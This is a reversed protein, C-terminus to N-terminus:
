QDNSVVKPNIIGNMAVSLSTEYYKAHWSGGPDAPYFQELYRWIVGSKRTLIKSLETSKTNIVKAQKDCQDKIYALAQLSTPCELLSGFVQHDKFHKEVLDRRLVDATIRLSFVYQDSICVFANFNEDDGFCDLYFVVLASWIEILRSYGASQGQELLRHRRLLPQQLLLPQKQLNIPGIFDRGTVDEPFYRQYLETYKAIYFFFQEGGVLPQNLQLPLQTIDDVKYAPYGNNVASLVMSFEFPVTNATHPLCVVQWYRYFGVATPPSLPIKLGDGSTHVAFEHPLQLDDVNKNRQRMRTRALIQETLYYALRQSNGVKQNEYREWLYSCGMGVAPGSVVGRLHRAKLLDFDTLRKGSSNQSDFCAFAQDISDITIVVFEMKEWLTNLMATVDTKPETNLYANIYQYNAILSQRSQSDPFKAKMLGLAQTENSPALKQLANLLLALTLCRQQGDVLNAKDKEQHLIVTGLFLPLQGNCKLLTKIDELLLEVQQKGWCYRRQYDPIALPRQMLAWLTNKEVKISDNKENPQTM